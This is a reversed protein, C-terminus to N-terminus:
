TKESTRSKEDKLLNELVYKIAAEYAETPSNVGKSPPLEEKTYNNKFIDYVWIFHDTIRYFPQVNIWIEHKEYLWMVVEAITPASVKKNSDNHNCPIKWYSIGDLYWATRVPLNFGRKKLMEGIEFEVPENM